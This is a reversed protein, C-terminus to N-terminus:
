YDGSSGFFTDMGGSPKAVSMVGFLAGEKNFIGEEMGPLLNFSVLSTYWTGDSGYLNLYEECPKQLHLDEHIRTVTDQCSAPGLLHAFPVGDFDCMFMERASIDGATLILEKGLQHYTFSIRSRQSLQNLIHACNKPTAVSESQEHVLPSTHHFPPAM